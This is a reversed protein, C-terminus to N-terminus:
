IQRVWPDGKSRKFMWLGFGTLGGAGTLTASSTGFATWLVSGTAVTEAIFAEAEKAPLSSATAESTPEQPGSEVQSDATAVPTSALNSSVADPKSAPKEEPCPTIGCGASRLAKVLQNYKECEIPSTFENPKVTKLASSAEIWEDTDVNRVLWKDRVTSIGGEIYVFVPTGDKCYLACVVEVNTLLFSKDGLKIMKVRAGENYKIGAVTTQARIFHRYAKIPSSEPHTKCSVQVERAYIKKASTGNHYTCCYWNGKRKSVDYSLDITIVSNLKCNLLNLKMELQGSSIDSIKWNTNDTTGTGTNEYCTETAEQSGSGQTTIKVLLPRGRKDPPGKRTPDELPTWYFVSVTTVKSTGPINKTKEGGYKFEKATFYKKGYVIHKYQTFDSVSVSEGGDVTIWRDSDDGYAYTNGSTRNYINITVLPPKCDSQITDLFDVIDQYNSESYGKLSPVHMWETDSDPKKFWKDGTAQPLYILLPNYATIGTCVESKCFYVIVKKAKMVPLYLGQLKITEGGKIFGSINFNRGETPIHEYATYNGLNSSYLVESVKVKKEKHPSLPSKDDHCYPGGTRTVDIQVVDNIECNLLDLEAQTPGKGSRNYERWVDGKSNRYYTKSGNSDQIEVLLAKRTNDTWYYASVSTVGDKQPIVQIPTSNVDQVALLKFPAHLSDEHTYKLFDRTVGAPLIPPYLSKTVKITKNSEVDPYLITNLSRIDPKYELKITVEPQPKSVPVVFTTTATISAGTSMLCGILNACQLGELVKFLKSFKDCGRANDPTVDDLGKIVKTWSVGQTGKKYWGTAQSNTGKAADIYILAPNNGCYFAYVDIPGTIPFTLGNAVVRKRDRKEGDSNLYYKIKALQIKGDGPISHKYYDITSYNHRVNSKTLVKVSSHHISIKNCCYSEGSKRSETLDMTVANNLKCNQEDLEKEIDEGTLKSTPINVIPNWQTGDSKNSYYHYKNEKLVEVLLPKEMRSGHQWYWVSLHQIDNGPSIGLDVTIDNKEEGFVVQKVTFSGGSPPKHTFKLFGPPNNEERTLQVSGEPSRPYTTSGVHADQKINIIVDSSPFVISLTQQVEKVVKVIKPIVKAPTIHIKNPDDHLQDLTELTPTYQTKELSAQERARDEEIEEKLGLPPIFKDRKVEGELYEFVKDPSVLQSKPEPYERFIKTNDNPLKDPNCKNDSLLKAVKRFNERLDNNIQDETEPIELLDWGNQTIRQYWQYDKYGDKAYLIELFIPQEKCSTAYYATVKYASRIPFMIGKQKEGGKVIRGITFPLKDDSAHEYISFGKYVDSSQTTVKIRKNECDKTCCYKKDHSRNSIDITTTRNRTCNHEVIANNLEGIKDKDRKDWQLGVRGDNFYYTPQNRTDLVKVVLPKGLHHKWYFTSIELVGDPPIPIEIDKGNYRVSQIDFRGGHPKQIFEYIDGDYIKRSPRVSVRCHYQRSTNKYIDLILAGTSRCSLEELKEKLREPKSLDDKQTWVTNGLGAKPNENYSYQKGESKDIEIVFPIDLDPGGYYVSVETVSPIKELGKNFILEGNNWVSRLTFTGKKSKHIHKDYGRAPNNTEKTVTIGLNHPKKDCRCESGGCLKDLELKLWKQTM